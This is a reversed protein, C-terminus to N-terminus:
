ATYRTGSLMNYRTGADSGLEARAGDGPLEQAAESPLEQAAESPLEARGYRPSLKEQAPPWEGATSYNNGAIGATGNDAYQQQQQQEQQPQRQPQKRRRSWLFYALLALAVAGVAAGIGIGAKAGSSLGDAAATATVPPSATQAANAATQHATQAATAQAESSSSSTTQSMLRLIGSDTSAWQIQIVDAYVTNAEVSQPDITLLSPDSPIPGEAKTSTYYVNTLPSDFPSACAHGLLGRDTSSHYYGQIMTLLPMKRDLNFQVGGVSPCCYARTVLDGNKLTVPGINNPKANAVSTWGSPCIGPNYFSNFIDTFSAPYCNQDGTQVLGGQWFSTGDYTVTSLCSPPPTFITTLSVRGVVGPEWTSLNPAIQSSEAM